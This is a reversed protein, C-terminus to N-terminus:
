VKFFKNDYAKCYAKYYGDITKAYNFAFDCVKKKLQKNNKAFYILEDAIASGQRGSSRLSGWACISAMNKIVDSLKKTNGHFMTYDIRDALPQLEKLVYNTNKIDISALLAPPASLIRKQVEVLREAESNWKPQKAKIHTAACSPLTEKLDLLFHGNLGGRGEVLAIYRKLGLSSTGAIRFAVDIVNYFEPNNKSKAWQQIHTTVQKTEEPSAVLSHEHDILLKLKGKKEETRKKILSKRKREKVKDLFKKITGTATENELVRIYGLELQNFYTDAFVSCLAHAEKADISLNSSALYISTLMRSVDLMCPGLCCEDFDNIDFYTVRNDGKYSGINELHLDGCIWTHPSDHLYSHSAVDEYFLHPIARFFRYKDDRMAKYKLKLLEPLRGNNYVKIKGPVLEPKM